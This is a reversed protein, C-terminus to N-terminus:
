FARLMAAQGVEFVAKIAPDKGALGLGEFILDGCVLDDVRAKRSQDGHLWLGVEVQEVEVAEKAPVEVAQEFFQITVVLLGALVGIDQEMLGGAPGQGPNQGSEVGQASVQRGIGRGGVRGCVLAGGAVPQDIIKNGGIDLAVANAGGVALNHCGAM